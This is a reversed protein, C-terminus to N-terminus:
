CAYRCALSEVRCRMFVNHKKEQGLSVPVTTYGQDRDQKVRTLYNQIHENDPEALLCFEMNRITYEHGCFMQMTDPLSIMLDFANLMNTANGQFFRGCGGNFITDGTFVSQNVGTVIEYIGVKNKEM